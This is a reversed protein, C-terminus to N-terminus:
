FEFEGPLGRLGSLLSPSSVNLIFSFRFRLVLSCICYLWSRSEVIVKREEEGM